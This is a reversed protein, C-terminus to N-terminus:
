MYRRVLQLPMVETEEGLLRRICEDRESRGGLGLGRTVHRAIWHFEIDPRATLFAAMRTIFVWNGEKSRFNSSARLGVNGIELKLYWLSDAQELLHFFDDTQAAPIPNDADLYLMLNLKKLDKVAGGACGILDTFLKVGLVVFEKNAFLYSLAESRIQRSVYFISLGLVSIKPTFPLQFVEGSPSSRDISIKTLASYITYSYIINRVEGPLQLIRSKTRNHEAANIADLKSRGPGMADIVPKRLYTLKPLPMNATKSTNPASPASIYAFM